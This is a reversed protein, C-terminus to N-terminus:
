EDETRDEFFAHIQDRVEIDFLGHWTRVWEPAAPDHRIRGSDVDGDVLALAEDKTFTALIFATADWEQEGKPEAAVPPSRPVMKMPLFRAVIKREFIREHARLGLATPRAKGDIVVVAGAAVLADVSAWGPDGNGAIVERLRTVYRMCVDYQYASPEEIPNETERDFTPPVGCIAAKIQHRTWDDPFIDWDSALHALGIALLEQPTFRSLFDEHCADLNGVILRLTDIGDREPEAHPDNRKEDTDTKTSM